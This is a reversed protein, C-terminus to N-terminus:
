RTGLQLSKSPSIMQLSGGEGVPETGTAKFTEVPQPDPDCGTAYAMCGLTLGLPPTGPDSPCDRPDFITCGWIMEEIENWPTPDPEPEEEECFEPIMECYEEWDAPPEWDEFLDPLEMPEHAHDLFEISPQFGPPQDLDLILREAGFQPGNGGYSLPTPFYWPHNDECTPLAGTFEVGGLYYETVDEGMFMYGEGSEWAIEGHNEAEIINGSGDDWWIGGVHTVRLGCYNTPMLLEGTDENILLEPLFSDTNEFEVTGAQPGAVNVIIRPNGFAHAPEANFTGATAACLVAGIGALAALKAGFRM